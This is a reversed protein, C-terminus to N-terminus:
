TNAEWNYGTWFIQYGPVRCAVFQDSRSTYKYGTQNDLLKILQGDAGPVKFSMESSGGRYWHRNPVNEGGESASMPKCLGVAQGEKIISSPVLKTTGIQSHFTIMNAGVELNSIKYSDDFRRYAMQDDLVNAWALNNMFVMQEVKSPTGLGKNAAYAIGDLIRGFTLKVGANPGGGAIVIGKYRSYKSTEIGFLPGTQTSIIKIIGPMLKTTDEMGKIGWYHSTLSSAAVVTGDKFTVYGNEVNVSELRSEFVVNGSSREIQVFTTGERGVFLGPAFEGLNFLVARSAVNVGNTFAIGNLTGTGNTFAVGRFTATMFATHGLLGDAQGYLVVDNLTRAHSELNNAVLYKTASKFAKENGQTRSMVKWPIVSTLLYEYSKYEAQEVVGANAPNIDALALGSGTWTHGSEDTLAMGEIYSEGDSAGGEFPIFDLIMMGPVRLNNFKGYVRQFLGNYTAAQSM